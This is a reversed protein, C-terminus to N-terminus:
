AAYEGEQFGQDSLDSLRELYSGLTGVAAWNVADPMRNFHEASLRVLRQLIADIEAKRAVFTALAQTNDASKCM